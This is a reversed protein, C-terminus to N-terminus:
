WRRGLLAGCRAVIADVAPDGALIAGALADIIAASHEL